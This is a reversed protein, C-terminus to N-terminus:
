RWYLPVWSDPKPRRTGWQPFICCSPRATPWRRSRPRKLRWIQPSLSTRRVHQVASFTQNYSFHSCFSQCCVTRLLPGLFVCSPFVNDGVLLAVSFHIYFSFSHGQWIRPVSVLVMYLLSTCVRDQFWLVELLLSPLRRAMPWPLSKKSHWGLLLLLCIPGPNSGWCHM